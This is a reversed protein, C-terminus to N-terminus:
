DPSVNSRTRHSMHYSLTTTALGLAIWFAANLTSSIWIFQASLEDPALNVVTGPPGGVIHPAFLLIIGMARYAHQRAFALFALGFLTSEITAIWWLQRVVLHAEMAGPLSPPYIIGPAAFFAVYGGLGWLVGHWWNLRPLMNSAAGIILSIAFAFAINSIGTFLNREWGTEPEWESEAVEDIAATVGFIAAAQAAEHAALEKAAAKEYKEAELIVPELFVIEGVTLLAGSLFGALMATRLLKGLM